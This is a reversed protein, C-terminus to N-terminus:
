PGAVECAIYEGLRIREADTPAPRNGRPMLTNRAKPGFAAQKDIDSTNARVLSRTDFDITVPAGNRADGSKTQSHCEICYSQFFAQAFNAYTPPDITPCQSGTHEGQPTSCAGAALFALHTWRV